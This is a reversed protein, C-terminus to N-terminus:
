LGNALSLKPIKGKRISGCCSDCVIKCNYDLVSDKYKHLPSSSNKCEVCSVELAALVHLQQKIAKLRDMRCLLRLKGCVTCGTESINQSKIRSCAQEIISRSLNKDLPVPSFEVHSSRDLKPESAGPLTKSKTKPHKHWKEIPLMPKTLRKIFVTKNYM